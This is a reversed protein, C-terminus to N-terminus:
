NQTEPKTDAPTLAQITMISSDGDAQGIEITRLENNAGSIHIQKVVKKMKDEKPVLLLKWNASDGEVTLEYNKQLAQMDGALTGRISDIFAAIEPYSQLQLTRKKSGRQLILTNGELIMSEASPKLTRKELYDPARYFLEGSSQVPKQLMAISKTETFSAHGAQTQALLQMLQDVDWDAAPVAFSFLALISLLGMWINRALKRANNLGFNTMDKM